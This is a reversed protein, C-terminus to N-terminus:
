CARSGQWGRGRAPASRAAPGPTIGPTPSRTPGAACIDHVPVPTSACCAPHQIPARTLGLAAVAAGALGLAAVSLFLTRFSRGFSWPGRLSHWSGNVPLTAIEGFVRSEPPFAAAEAAEMVTEAAKVLQASRQDLKWFVLSLGAAALGAAVGLPWLRAYAALVYALGTLLLGSSAVYFNFVSIRQDAHLAFHRWAHDFVAQQEPTM